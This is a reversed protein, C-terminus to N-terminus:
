AKTEIDNQAQEPVCVEVPLPVAVCAPPVLTEAPM